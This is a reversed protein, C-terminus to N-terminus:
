FPVDTPDAVTSGNFKEGENATEAGLDLWTKFEPRLWKILIDLPVKRNCSFVLDNLPWEKEEDTLPTVKASLKEMAVKAGYSTKGKVMAKNVLIDLGSAVDSIDMGLQECIGQVDSLVKGSLRALKYGKVKSEKDGEVKIVYPDDRDIANWALEKSPRTLSQIAKLTKVEEESIGGEKIAQTVAKNIACIPCNGKLAKEEKVDWNLCCTSKPISGPGKIFAEPVVLGNSGGSASKFGALFHSHVTFPVGVFRVNSDGDRWKLFQNKFYIRSGDKAKYNTDSKNANRLKDLVSSM